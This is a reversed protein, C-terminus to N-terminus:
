PVQARVQDIDDDEGLEDANKEDTARVGVARHSSVDKSQDQSNTSAFWIEFQRWEDVERSPGNLLLDMM